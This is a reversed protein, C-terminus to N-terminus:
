LSGKLINSDSYNFWGLSKVKGDEVERVHDQKADHEYGIREAHSSTLIYNCDEFNSDDCTIGGTAITLDRARKGKEQKCDDSLCYIFTRCLAEENSKLNDMLQNLGDIGKYSRTSHGTQYSNYGHTLVIIECDASQENRMSRWVYEWIYDSVKADGGNGNWINYVYENVNYENLDISENVIKRSNRDILHINTPTAFVRHQISRFIRKGKELPKGKMTDTNDIFIYLKEILKAATNTGNRKQAAYIDMNKHKAVFGTNVNYIINRAIPEMSDETGLASLPTRLRERYDKRLEPDQFILFCKELFIFPDNRNGTYNQDLTDPHYIKVSQRRLRKVDVEDLKPWHPTWSKELILMEYCSCEQIRPQLCFTQIDTNKGYLGYFTRKVGSVFFSCYSGTRCIDKLKFSFGHVQNLTCFSIFFSLILILARM